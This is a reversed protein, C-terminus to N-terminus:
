QPSSLIATRRFNITAAFLGWVLGLLLYFHRWHDTDVVFAELVLAVFPLYTAIFFTQWPTRVWLAKFGVYLTLVILTLYAAGGVWGHNLLTGLYTNHSVWSTTHAFGWPGMGLPHSLIERWSDAQLLFRSRNDAGFDYGQLHSREAFMQSVVDISSLFMFTAAAAITGGVVFFVIRNRSRRDRQTVFLIYMLTIVCFALSGWAARSFSLLLGVFMIIGAVLSWLRIKDVIFGEILWVLPPVLFCGLVNPDKFGGVARDNMAFDQLGPLFHFFTDFYGLTGLLASIVGCTIYASRLTAIARMTDQAFICAFLVATLGLYFSIALFRISDAPGFNSLIVAPDGSVRMYGSGVIQLLGVAGSADRILLLVLLPLLVRSFSIRALICAFGLVAALYDCPSPEIVVYGSSLVTVYLVVYLFRRALANSAREVRAIGPGVRTAAPGRVSVEDFSSM